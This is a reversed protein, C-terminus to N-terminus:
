ETGDTIGFLSIDQQYSMNVKGSGRPDKIFQHTHLQILANYLFLCFWRM